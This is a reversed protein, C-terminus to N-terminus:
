KGSNVWIKRVFYDPFFKHEIRNSFDIFSDALSLKPDLVFFHFNSVPIITRSNEAM